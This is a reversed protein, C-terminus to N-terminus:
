TSFPSVGDDRLAGGAPRGTEAFDYIAGELPIEHETAYREAAELLPGEVHLTVKVVRAKPVKAALGQEIKEDCWGAERLVKAVERLEDASRRNRTAKATGTEEDSM